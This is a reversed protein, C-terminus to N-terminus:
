KKRKIIMVAAVIIILAGLVVLVLMLWLPMEGENHGDPDSVSQSIESEGGVSAEPASVTVKVTVESSRNFGDSVSVTFSDEGVFGDNARYILTKKNAAVAVSGNAPKRPFEVTIDGWYSDSDTIIMDAMVRSDGAVLEIDEVSVEPATNKYVGHIFSYTIDYLRRLYIGRPTNIDAYCFDYFSGPGAGQYYTKLSNMYGTTAGYYLYSEYNKGASLYDDGRFASPENTEIEVGLNNNYVSQAFEGLMGLEFYSYTDSFALNPQMVAGSFGLEEWHDFGVSLYFPDFLTVLKKRKVYENFSRVLEDEHDSDSYNVEERLWYFGALEINEYKKEKFAAIYKDAFWQLIASREELTRCYEDLGDDDIDGFPKDIVTPYPVTLFVKYKGELGLTQRVKGVVNDLAALDRGDKFTYEFYLEWDSMVAGSKGNTKVLRGGSPYDGHCPVFAIADFMKGSINGVTDLYAVYPLLDEETLVGVSDDPAYYGNYLKVIDSVGALSKLYGEAAEPEEPKVKAEDGSTETSGIIRIEDCYAFIDSCFEVRVYRASYTKEPVIEFECRSVTTDALNYGTEFRAAAGYNEGDDSLYVNIYRPAYIGSNKAHLFGAQVKTVACVSGLDFTVIRSQSRFARYWGDSSESNTATKGDTLQGSDVDFKVGGEVFNAHSMSVPEGTEITYSLGSALNTEGEASAPVATCLMVATLLLVMLKKLM